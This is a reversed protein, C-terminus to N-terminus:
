REGGYRSLVREHIVGPDGEYRHLDALEREHATV